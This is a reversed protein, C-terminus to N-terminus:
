FIETIFLLNIPDICTIEITPPIFSIVTSTSGDTREVRKFKFIANTIDINNVKVQYKNSLSKRNISDTYININFLTSETATTYNTGFSIRLKKGLEWKNIEDDILIDIDKDITFKTNFQTYNNEQIRILQTYNTNPVILQHRNNQISFDNVISYIIKDKLQYEQLNVRIKKKNNVNDIKIGFGNDLVDLNYSVNISTRNNYINDIETFAQQVLKVLADNSEFISTSGEIFEYLEDVKTKLETFNQTRYTFDELENIKDQLTLFQTNITDLSSGVNKLHTMAELFLEMSYTNYENIITDVQTDGVSTDLRLNVKLGWANGNDGTVENPKFKSFRTMESGGGSLSTPKNLFLVGFLNSTKENPTARNFVDYYLLVANFQFSKSKNSQNYEAFTSIDPSTLIDYYNDENFDISIGDLRSRLININRNLYQNQGKIFLKDNQQDAFNPSTIYSNSIPYNYYWGDVLKKTENEIVEKKLIYDNTTFTNSPSDYFALTNLGLPHQEEPTRGYLYVDNVPVGTSVQYVKNKTYNVDDITNFLVTNTNGHSIPVHIYIESYTSSSKTTNVMDIEGIYQVVKKYGDNSEEIFRAAQTNNSVEGTQARKFRLAGLEKLWKFFVRESVTRHLTSDYTDDSTLVTEMNLCYNQFSEALKNEPTKNLTNSFAGPIADYQIYNEKKATPRLEDPIDLLVFKSWTFERDESQNILFNLDETSSNFIYLTGGSQRVTRIFSSKM